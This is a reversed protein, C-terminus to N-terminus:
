ARPRQTSRISSTSRSAKSTSPGQSAFKGGLNCDVVVDSNLSEELSYTLTWVLGTPPNSPWDFYQSTLPGGRQLRSAVFCGKYGYVNEGLTGPVPGEPGDKAVHSIVLPALPLTPKWEGSCANTVPDLTGDCYMRTDPLGNPGCYGTKCADCGLSEIDDKPEYQYGSVTCEPPPNDALCAPNVDPAAQVNLMQTIQCGDGYVDANNPDFDEDGLLGFCSVLSRVVIVNISATAENGSSDIASVDLTYPGAPLDDTEWSCTYDNTAAVQQCPEPLPMGNASATVSSVAVNDTANVEIAVTGTVEDGNEPTIITLTPPVDDIFVNVSDSGINGASDAASVVISYNGGATANWTCAYQDPNATAVCPGPLPAGNVTATVSSVAVDDTVTALIMENGSVVDGESPSTIMVMPPTIDPIVVSLCLDLHNVDDGIMGDLYRNLNTDTSVPAVTYDYIFNNTDVTVGVKHAVGGTIQFMFSNDDAWTITMPVIDGDINFGITSTGSGPGNTLAPFANKFFTSDSPCDNRNKIVGPGAPIGSASPDPFDINDALAIETALGLLLAGTAAFFKNKM